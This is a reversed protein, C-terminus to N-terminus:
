PPPTAQSFPRSGFVAFEHAPIVPPPRRPTETVMVAKVAHVGWLLFVVRSSGANLARIAADTFAEWGRRALRAGARV